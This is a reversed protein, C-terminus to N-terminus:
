RGFRDAAPSLVFAGITLGVLGASFIPGFSAPTLGWSEAIRPAVFAISQTDFGDLMAIVFGTTNYCMLAIRDGSTLGHGAFVTAARRSQDVLEAYTLSDGEGTILVEKTPFKTAASDFAALIDM